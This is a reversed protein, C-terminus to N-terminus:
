DIHNSQSYELESSFLPLDLMYVNKINKCMYKLLTTKGCGQNGIILLTKSQIQKRHKIMRIIRSAIQEETPLTSIDDLEISPVKTFVTKTSILGIEDGEIKIYKSRNHYSFFIFTGGIAPFGILQKRYKPNVHISSLKKMNTTDFFTPEFEEGEPATKPNILITKEDIEKSFTLYFTFAYNPNSIVIVNGNGKYNAGVCAVYFPIKENYKTIM